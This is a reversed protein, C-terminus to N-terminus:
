TFSSWGVGQKRCNYIVKIRYRWRPQFFVFCGCFNCMQFYNCGETDYRFCIVDPFGTLTWFQFRGFLPMCFFNIIVFYYTWLLQLQFLSIHFLGKKDIFSFLLFLSKISICIFREKHLVESMIERQRVTSIMNHLDEHFLVLKNM